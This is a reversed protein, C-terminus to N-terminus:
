YLNYLIDDLQSLCYTPSKQFASRKSFTARYGLSITIGKSTVSWPSQVSNVLDCVQLKARRLEDQGSQLKTKVKAVYSAPLCHFGWPKYVASGYDTLSVWILLQVLSSKPILFLVFFLYSVDMFCWKHTLNTHLMGLFSSFAFHLLTSAFLFCGLCSSNMVM